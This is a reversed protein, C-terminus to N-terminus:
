LPQMAAVIDPRPPITPGLALPGWPSPDQPAHIRAPPMEAAPRSDEALDELRRVVRSHPLLRDELAEEPLQGAQLQLKLLVHDPLLEALLDVFAVAMFALLVNLCRAAARNRPIQGLM